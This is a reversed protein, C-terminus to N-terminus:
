RLIVAKSYPWCKLLYNGIYVDLRCLVINMQLYTETWSIFTVGISNLNLIKALSCLTLSFFTACSLNPKILQKFCKTMVAYVTHKLLNWKNLSSSPNGYSQTVKINQWVKYKVNRPRRLCLSNLLSRFSCSQTFHCVHTDLVWASMVFRRGAAKTAETSCDCSEHGPILDVSCLFCLLHYLFVCWCM